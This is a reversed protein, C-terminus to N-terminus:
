FDNDYHLLYRPLFIKREVALVFQGMSDAKVGQMM